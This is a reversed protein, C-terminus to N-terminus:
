FEIKIKKNNNKFQNFVFEKKMSNKIESFFKLNKWLM